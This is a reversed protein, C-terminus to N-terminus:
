FNVKRQTRDIPNVGIMTIDFAEELTMRPLISPVSRTLLTKGSSPPGSMLIHHGGSVVVELAHKVREQGYV